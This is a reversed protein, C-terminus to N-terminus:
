IWLHFTHYSRDMRLGLRTWTKQPYTNTIQTSIEVQKCGQAYVWKLSHIIIDTYIDKERIRPHVASISTRGAVGDSEIKITVFAAVVGDMEIIFIQDSLNNNHFSNVAWLEYIEDCKKSDLKPDAHFHSQYGKFSERAIWQV